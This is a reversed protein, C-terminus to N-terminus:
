PTDSVLDGAEMNTMTGDNSGKKDTLLPFTDGDGMTWWSVLNATASHVLLDFPTGDHWIESAEASTLEKNWVSVEDITGIFVSDTGQRGSIQMNVANTTTSTLTDVSITLSISVDDVYITVGSANTSGDYTVVIHHWLSDNITFPDTRVQLHNTSSISILNFRLDGNAGMRVSWGRANGASEAKSVAYVLANTTAKLWFSVSFPNVRDFNLDAAVGCDVYEDTGGFITSQRNNFNTAKSDIKGLPGTIRSRTYSSDSM